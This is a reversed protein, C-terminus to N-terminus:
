PHFDILSTEPGAASQKPEPDPESKKFRDFLGM